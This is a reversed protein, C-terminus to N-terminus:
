RPSVLQNTRAAPGPFLWVLVEDLHARWNGWSHGEHWERYCFQYGGEALVRRLNQVLPILLPIDYTGIDLYIRLPRKEGQAFAAAVAPEVFSSQAGINAFREPYRIGLWLSINGGNSAGITAHLRPDECVGYRGGLWPLLEEVIFGALAEKRDGAYERGRQKPPVFVAVLPPVQRCAILYDLARTASGLNLYDDGDHFLALAYPGAAPAHGAPLYVSVKRMEGLSPSYVVTDSLTGQPMGPLPSLEGPPKYKPMRLESNPGFGGRVTHPNRPDLLWLTDDVVLKYDLRADPEFVQRRYWLDTGEIRSMPCANTSWATADGAVAVRRAQGRYLFYVVSDQVVVPFTPCGWSLSDVLAQRQKPPAALVRALLEGCPQGEVTPTVLTGVALVISAIRPVQVAQSQLFRV